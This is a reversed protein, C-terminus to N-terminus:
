VLISDAESVRALRDGNDGNEVRRRSEPEAVEVIEGADTDIVESRLPYDQGVADELVHGLVRGPLVVPRPREDVVVRHCALGLEYPSRLALDFSVIPFDYGSEGAFISAGTTM